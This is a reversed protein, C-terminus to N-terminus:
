VIEWIRTIGSDDKEVTLREFRHRSFNFRYIDLERTQVALVDEISLAEQKQATKDETIYLYM